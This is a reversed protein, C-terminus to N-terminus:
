DARYNSQSTYSTADPQGIRKRYKQGTQDQGMLIQELQDKTLKSLKEYMPGNKSIQGILISTIKIANRHQNTTWTLKNWKQIMLIKNIIVM